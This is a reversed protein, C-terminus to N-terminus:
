LRALFGRGRRTSATEVLRFPNKSEAVSSPFFGKGRTSPCRERRVGVLRRRPWSAPTHHPEVLPFRSKQAKVLPGIANLNDPPLGLFDRGDPPYLKWWIRRTPTPTPTPTPNPMPAPPRRVYGAFMRCGGSGASGLEDDSKTSAPGNM